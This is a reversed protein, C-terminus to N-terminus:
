RLGRALARMMPADIAYHADPNEYGFKSAVIQHTFHHGRALCFQGIETWVDYDYMTAAEGSRRGGDSNIGFEAPNALHDLYDRFTLYKHQDAYVHDLEADLGNKLRLGHIEYRDILKGIGIDMHDSMSPRDENRNACIDAGPEFSRIVRAIRKHLGSEPMENATQWCHPLGDLLRAIRGIFAELVWDPLVNVLTHDDAARDAVGNLVGWSVGNVNYRYPGLNPDPHGPRVGRMSWTYLDLVQAMVVMRKNALAECCFRMADDWRPNEQTLDWRGDAARLYPVSVAETPSNPGWANMMWVLAHTAGFDDAFVDAAHRVVDRPHDYLHGIQM